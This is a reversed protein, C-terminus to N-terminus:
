YSRRDMCYRMPTREEDVYGLEKLFADLRRLKLFDWHEETVEENYNMLLNFELFCQKAHWGYFELLAKVKPVERTWYFVVQTADCRIVWRGNLRTVQGNICRHDPMVRSEINHIVVLPFGANRMIYKATLWGFMPTEPLSDPMSVLEDFYVSVFASV